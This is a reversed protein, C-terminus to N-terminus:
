PTKRAPPLLRIERSRFLLPDEPTGFLAVPETKGAIWSLDVTLDSASNPAPLRAEVYFATGFVLPESATAFRGDSQREVFRLQLAPPVVTLTANGRLLRAEIRDGGLVHLDTPTTAPGATLRLQRSELTLGRSNQNVQLPLDESKGNARVIHLSVERREPGLADMRRLRLRVSSGVPAQTALQERGFGDAVIWDLEVAEPPMGEVALDFPITIDDFHIQKVGPRVHSWVYGQILIGVVNDRQGSNEATIPWSWYAEVDQGEVWAYHRGWLNEGFIRIEFGRKNGRMGDSGDYDVQLRGPSGGYAVRNTTRGRFEIASILPPLRRWIETGGNNGYKWVGRMENSSSPLFTSVRNWYDTLSFSGSPTYVFSGPSLGLWEDNTLRQFNWLSGLGTPFSAGSVFPAGNLTLQRTKRLSLYYRLTKGPDPSDTATIEWNGEVRDILEPPATAVAPAPQPLCTFPFGVLALALFVVRLWRFRDRKTPLGGDISFQKETAKGESRNNPAAFMKLLGHIM